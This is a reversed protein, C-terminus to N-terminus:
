AWETERLGIDLYNRMSKEDNCAARLMKAFLMLDDIYQSFVCFVDEDSDFHFMDTGSNNEEWEKIVGMTFIEWDKSSGEFGVKNFIDAKFSDSIRLLLSLAFPYHQVFFFPAIDEPKVWINFPPRPNPLWPIVEWEDDRLLGYQEIDKM